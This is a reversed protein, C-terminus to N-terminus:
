LLSKKLKINSNNLIHQHVIVYFQILVEFIREDSFDNLYTVTCFTLTYCLINALRQKRNYEM